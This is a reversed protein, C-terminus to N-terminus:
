FHSVGHGMADLFESTKLAPECHNVHLNTNNWKMIGDIEMLEMCIEMDMVTKQPDSQLQPAWIEWNKGFTAFPAALLQATPPSSGSSRMGHAQSRDSTTPYTCNITRHRLSPTFSYIYIQNFMVIEFPCNHYQRDVIPQKKERGGQLKRLFVM